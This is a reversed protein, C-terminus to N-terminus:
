GGVSPEPSAVDDCMKVDLDKDRTRNNVRWCRRL